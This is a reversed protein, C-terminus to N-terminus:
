CAVLFFKAVSLVDHLGGIMLSDGEREGTANRQKGFHRVVQM